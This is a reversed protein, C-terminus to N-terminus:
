ERKPYRRFRGAFQQDSSPRDKGGNNFYFDATGGDPSAQGYSLLIRNGRLPANFNINRDAKLTLTNGAWEVPAYVSLDGPNTGASNAMSSVSVRSTGLTATLGGASISSDSRAGSDSAIDFGTSEIALLGTIDRSSSTATTIKAGDNIKVQAASALITGGDGGNPASADLTGSVQMKGVNRDGILKISGTKGELTQAEIVGANNVVERILSDATQAELVIRGGSASIVGREGNEAL